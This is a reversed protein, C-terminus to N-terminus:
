NRNNREYFERRITKLEMLIQKEIQAGAIMFTRISEMTKNLQKLEKIIEDM